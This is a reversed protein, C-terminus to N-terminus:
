RLWVECAFWGKSAIGTTAIYQNVAAPADELMKWWGHMASGLRVWTKGAVSREFGFVYVYPSTPYGLRRNQDTKEFDVVASDPKSACRDDAENLSRGDVGGGEEGGAM